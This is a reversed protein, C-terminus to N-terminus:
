YHNCLEQRLWRWNGFHAAIYESLRCTLPTLFVAETCFMEGVDPRGVEVVGRLDVNLMTIILSFVALPVDDRSQAANDVEIEGRKRM